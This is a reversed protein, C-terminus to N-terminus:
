RVIVVPCQAHHACQTSVSGLLLGTFGGHGRSGVVLMDAEASADVLAQAASGYEVVADADFGRERLEAAAGEAITHAAHESSEQASPAVMPTYGSSYVAVPVHWATVVRLRSGRLEAEDTAWELARASEDSGDIGVVILPQDERTMTDEKTSVAM